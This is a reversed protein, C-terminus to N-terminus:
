AKARLISVFRRWGADAVGRNLGTKAADGNPLYQGVATLDPVPRARRIMNSIALDEVVIFDNASVLLSAVKHHFDRRQNAIKRHRAAVTERCRSRNKSGRETRALRRQALALKAAATRAFRPNELHLGNSTTVFSTIGVDVGIQSGTAPLPTGPVEDCSLVLMWHSGARKVQITKVRGLVPRHVLVKVHGIGQLYVRNTEPCWRAGNGDRPWLVSDFRGRGRFRPYGPKAGAKVRRFFGAFARNLRRLTAQQSAFSWVAVDRRDRRIEKLQASQDGYSVGVCRKWAERREELAANYLERHAELCASLAVHQRATPRLRFNFSRKV